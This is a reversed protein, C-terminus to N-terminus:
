CNEVQEICVYWTHIYFDFIIVDAFLNHKGQKCIVFNDFWYYGTGYEKLNYFYNKTNVASFCGSAFVDFNVIAKFERKGHETELTGLSKCESETLPNSGKPCTETDLDSFTIGLFHYFYAVYM